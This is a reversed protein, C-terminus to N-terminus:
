LVPAEKARLWTPGAGPKGVNTRDSLHTKGKSILTWTKRWAIPTPIATWTKMGALAFGAKLMVARGMGGIECLGVVDPDTALIKGLDERTQRASMKAKLNAAVFRVTAGM